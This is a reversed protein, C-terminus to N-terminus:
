YGGLWLVNKKDPNEYEADEEPAFIEFGYVNSLNNGEADSIVIVSADDLDKAKKLLSRLHGVRMFKMEGFSVVSM